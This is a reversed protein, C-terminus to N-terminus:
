CNKKMYCFFFHCQLCTSFYLRNCYLNNCIFFFGDFTEGFVDIRGKGVSNFGNKGSRSANNHGTDAFTGVDGGLNDGGEIARAGGGEEHVCCVGDM